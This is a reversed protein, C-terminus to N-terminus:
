TALKTLYETIAPMWPGLLKMHNAALAVWEGYVKIFRPKERAKVAAELEATKAILETRLREDEVGEQITSKIGEFIPHSNDINISLDTSNHLVRANPGNLNYYTINTAMRQERRQKALANRVWLDIENHHKTRTESLVEDFTPKSPGNAAMMPMGLIERTKARTKTILPALYTDLRTKLEAETGEEVPAEGDAIVQIMAACVTKAYERVHDHYMMVHQAWGRPAGAVCPGQKLVHASMKKVKIRIDSPEKDLIEKAVRDMLESTDKDM